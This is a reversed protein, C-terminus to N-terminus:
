FVSQGNSAKEPPLTEEGIVMHICPCYTVQTWQYVPCQVCLCLLPWPCHTHRRQGKYIACLLLLFFKEGRKGSSISQPLSSFVIASDFPIFFSHGCKSVCFYQTLSLSPLSVLSFSFFLCFSHPIILCLPMQVVFSSHFVIRPGTLVSPDCTLVQDRHQIHTHSLAHTYTHTYLAMLHFDIM